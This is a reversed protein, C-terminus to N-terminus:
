KLVNEITSVLTTPDDLIAIPQGKELNEREHFGWTVAISPINCTTAERIDGLTDTIFVCDKAEVKYEDLVMGIKVVKSRHIDAGLLLTFCERINERKLIEDISSTYTSSIIVLTYTKSLTHVSEKLIDPIELTRVLSEYKESFQPHAKRPEGNKRVADHINGDFFSKYEELDLDKNVEANIAHCPLLTDILVGDFDFM